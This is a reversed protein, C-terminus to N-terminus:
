IPRSFAAALEVHTSWRFQGVPQVWELRWGGNILTRADRAFTAPNCSVYALRGAETRALDPAQEKAGARPPDLVIAEFRGLEQASLPRRFLDRHEVALQRGSHNGAMQLALAPDRAGEVALVRAGRSLPVAFTGVGAFLDAIASAQGVAEQVARTLAASGDATAQLFPKIPLGVAVGDLTVTVPEPEWRPESGYGEDVALRALKYTQAFDTLAEHAALGEVTVDDLAVDVGQDTMALFVTARKRPALLTGLLVRLPEVMAFLEPLLIHCERMDVIHHSVEENFGLVIRRGIREASLSARRRTRPPSLHPPRIDPIAVKQAALAASVRDVLYDAYARDDVHQLQCGGCRPFHRCPPDVHHPGPIIDAANTVMDGPATLAVTRGDATVGDGRAALRIVESLIM